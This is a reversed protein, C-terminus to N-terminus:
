HVSAKNHWSVHCFCRLSSIVSPVKWFLKSSFFHDSQNSQLIVFWRKIAWSSWMETDHKFNLCYVALSSSIIQTQTNFTFRATWLFMFLFLIITSTKQECARGSPNTEGKKITEKRCRLDAGNLNVAMSPTKKMELATRCLGLSLKALSGEASSLSRMFPDAASEYSITKSTLASHYVIRDWSYITIYLTVLLAHGASSFEWIALSISLSLCGGQFLKEWIPVGYAGFM